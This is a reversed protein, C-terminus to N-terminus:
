NVIKIQHEIEAAVLLRMMYVANVSIGNVVIHAFVYAHKLLSAASTVHLLNQLPRM